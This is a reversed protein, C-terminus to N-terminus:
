IETLALGMVPPDSVANVLGHSFSEIATVARGQNQALRLKATIGTGCGREIYGDMGGRVAGGM